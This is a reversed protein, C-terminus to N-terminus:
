SLLFIGVQKRRARRPLATIIKINRTTTPIHLAESFTRWLIRKNKNSRLTKTFFHPQQLSDRKANRSENLPSVILIKKYSSSPSCSLLYVPAIVPPKEFVWFTQFSAPLRVGNSDWHFQVGSFGLLVQIHYLFDHAVAQSFAGKCSMQLPLIHMHLFRKQAKVTFANSNNQSVTSGNRQLHVM